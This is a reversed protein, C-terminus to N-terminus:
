RISRSYDKFEINKQIDVYETYSKEIDAIEAHVKCVRDKEPLPTMYDGYLTTLLADYHKSVPFSGDEFQMNVTDSIWERKYVSKEYKSSAGFFSHVMKTNKRSHLKVIAAFPKIPLFRCFQMFVKKKASDTLYGRKYLSKAIVVKSAFFQIKRLLKNDSLNDCPFIDVYIGQHTEKDKPIYREIYATNNKRLKSYPMPWHESFEKQLFCDEGLENPAIELFREYDGRLMIVDLDDDWPVFGKHRVAGLASGAFLLYSIDHKKCIREIEYLMNLQVLQIDRINISM